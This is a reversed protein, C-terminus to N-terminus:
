MKVCLECSYANFKKFFTGQNYMVYIICGHKKDCLFHIFKQEFCM